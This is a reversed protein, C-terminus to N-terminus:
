QWFFQYPWLELWNIVLSEFYFLAILFGALATNLLVRMNVEYKSIMNPIGPVLLLMYYMAARLMTGGSFVINFILCLFLVRVTFADFEDLNDDQAGSSRILVNRVNRKGCCTFCAFITMGTLFAFSGALTVETKSEDFLLNVIAWIPGRFVYSAMLLVIWATIHVRGKLFWIIVPIALFVIASEHMTSALVILALSLIKNVLKPSFCLHMSFICLSMALTQRLGSVSFEFFQYCIFFLVSLTANKSYRHILLYIASCWIIYLFAAFGQFSIGAKSFIMMLFVFGKEFHYYSYNDWNFYQSADYAKKYGAIDIGVTDKKLALLLFIMLMSTFAIIKERRSREINLCKTVLPLALVLMILIIYIEM